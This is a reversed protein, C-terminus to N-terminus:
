GSQMAMEEEEEKKRGRERRQRARIERDGNVVGLRAVEL